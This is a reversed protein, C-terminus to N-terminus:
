RESTELAGCGPRGSTRIISGGHGLGLKVGDGGVDPGGARLLHAGEGVQSLLQLHIHDIQHPAVRLGRWGLGRTLPRARSSSM